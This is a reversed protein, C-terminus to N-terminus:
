LLVRPPKAPPNDNDASAPAPDAPLKALQAQAFKYDPALALAAEFEARAAALAGDSSEVQGLWAHATARGWDPSRGDSARADEFLTLARRYEQAARSRNGGYRGPTVYDSIGLLLQVRPSDPALQAAHQLRRASKPGLWVGRWPHLNIEVGYSSGLLAEAEAFDTDLKLATQLADEAADIYDTARDKDTPAYLNALQYDTYGLYYFAYKDTGRDRATRGTLLQRQMLLAQADDRCAALEADRGFDTLNTGATAISAFSLCLALLCSKMQIEAGPERRRLPLGPASYPNM